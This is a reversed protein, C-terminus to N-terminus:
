CLSTIYAVVADCTCMHFVSTQISNTNDTSNVLICIALIYAQLFTSSVKHILHFLLVIHLYIIIFLDFHINNCLHIVLIFSFISGNM